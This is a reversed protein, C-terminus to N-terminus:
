KLNVRYYFVVKIIVDCHGEPVLQIIKTMEAEAEKYYDAGIYGIVALIPAVMFALRTHKNMTKIKKFYHTIKKLYYIM